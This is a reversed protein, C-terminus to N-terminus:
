QCRGIEKDIWERQAVSMWLLNRKIWKLSNRSMEKYFGDSITDEMLNSLHEWLAKPEKPRLILGADKHFDPDEEDDWLIPIWWQEIFVPCGVVSGKRGDNCWGYKIQVKDGDKLDCEKEGM